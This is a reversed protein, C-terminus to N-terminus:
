WPRKRSPATRALPPPQPRRERRTLLHREDPDTVQWGITLRKGWARPGNLRVKMGDLIQAVSLQALIAPARTDSPRAPSGTACSRPAPWTSTAGPRTRPATASSSSPTPRCSARGGANDPEAFVVHNVVEAVWRYDGAEFSERAQELVASPAAWSSSTASPRSSRRTSGSTPRTATSGAWTASTSRRSTTASRATTAAATGARRRARAAARAARRDGRGTLGQNILRLTQDHLYAYLDRQKRLYDVIRESGWRPWHHGAFLVDATPASCSSRRTSTARGLRAPRPGARRAPHPPQADHPDRERRHLPGPARPLPLEDGGAGRHRPDAPLGIRVGDVTEEQGTTPSRSRQAPDADGDGALHDPRPRRRDPRRARARLLRGTCTAPAAAWRRARRLRERQGRARPLGGPALVPISASPSRRPPSSARPAASTTSTATPTSRPRHGAARRPARPLAGAGGGRDRGLDAPRHRRDGDDGEVVHM